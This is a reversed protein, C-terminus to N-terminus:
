DDGWDVFSSDRLAPTGVSAAPVPAVNARAAVGRALEETEDTTLTALRGGVNAMRKGSGVIYRNSAVAILPPTHDREFQDYGQKLNLWFDSWESRRFRAMARDTMRFPFVHVPISDQGSRLAAKTLSYIEEIGEDTMAYCGTSVCDGHIMLNGGTRGLGRDYPNPFGLDFSLHFNSNPNLQDATVFYFGEPAQRDGRQLKPGLKGSYKCVEYTRFHVYRGSAKEVWIELEASHKFVRIFIPDGLGLGMANLDRQLPTQLKNWVTLSRSSVPIDAAVALTAGGTLVALVSLIAGLGRKFMTGVKGSKM